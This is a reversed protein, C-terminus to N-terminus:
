NLEPQIARDKHIEVKYPPNLMACVKKMRYHLETAPGVMLWFTLNPKDLKYISKSCPVAWHGGDKLIDILNQQWTIDSPRPQFNRAFRSGEDPSLETELLKAIIRAAREKMATLRCTKQM